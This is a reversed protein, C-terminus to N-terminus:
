RGLNSDRARADEVGPLATATRQTKPEAQVGVCLFHDNRPGTPEGEVCLFVDEQVFVVPIGTREQGNERQHTSEGTQTFFENGLSGLGVSVKRSIDDIRRLIEM